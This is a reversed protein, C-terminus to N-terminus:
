FDGGVKIIAMMSVTAISHGSSAGGGAGSLLLLNILIMVKAASDNGRDRVPRKPNIGTSKPM